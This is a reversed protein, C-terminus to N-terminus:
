WKWADDKKVEKKNIQRLVGVSVVSYYGRLELERCLKRLLTKRAKYDDYNLEHLDNIILVLEKNSKIFPINTSKRFSGVCIYAIEKREYVYGLRVFPHDKPLYWRDKRKLNRPRMDLFKIECFILSCIYCVLWM